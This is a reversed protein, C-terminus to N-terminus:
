KLEFSHDDNEDLQFSKSESDDFGIQENSVKMNNRAKNTVKNCNKDTVNAQNKNTVKNTSQKNTVQNSSKNQLKKDKKMIDGM